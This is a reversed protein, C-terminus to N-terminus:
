APLNTIILHKVVQLQWKMGRVLIPLLINGEKKLTSILVVKKLCFFISGELSWECSVNKCSM